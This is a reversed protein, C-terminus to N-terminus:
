CREGVIARYQYNGSGAMGRINVAGACRPGDGYNEYGVWVCTWTHYMYHKTDAHRHNKPWCEASVDRVTHHNRAYNGAYYQALGKSLWYEAQSTSPLAGLLALAVVLASSRIM